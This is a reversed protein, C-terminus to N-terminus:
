CPLSRRIPMDRLEEAVLPAAEPAALLALDCLLHVHRGVDVQPMVGALFLEGVSVGATM